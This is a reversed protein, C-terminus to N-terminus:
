TYGDVRISRKKNDYRYINQKAIAINRAKSTYEAAKTCTNAKAVAHIQIMRLEIHFSGNNSYQVHSPRSIQQQFNYPTKTHQEINDCNQQVRERM